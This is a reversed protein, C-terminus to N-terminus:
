IARRGEILLYTDQYLFRTDEIIIEPEAQLYELTKRDFRAGYIKEVWKAFRKQRKSIMPNKSYIIELIRFRGGPKLVRVFQKIALPQLEDPMVCCMFTSILWDFHHSPIDPMLAADQQILHEIHCQANRARWKAIELMADSLDFGTLNVHSTYYAINRGTGIGAELVNGCVEKLLDPRWRRYRREWPFDLLDYLWATIAYKNYLAQNLIHISMPLSVYLSLWWNYVSERM